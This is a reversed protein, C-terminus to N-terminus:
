GLAEKFRAAMALPIPQIGCAYAAELEIIAGGSREWDPLMVIVSYYPENEDACAGNVWRTLEHLTERMCHEHSKPNEPVKGAPNFVKLAGLEMCLEEAADFAPKNFGEIGTMPGSLFVRKGEFSCIM